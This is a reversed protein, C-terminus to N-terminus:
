MTFPFFTNMLLYALLVCSHNLFFIHLRRHLHDYQLLLALNQGSTCIGVAHIGVQLVFCYVFAPLFIPDTKFHDVKLLIISFVSTLRSGNKRGLCERIGRRLPFFSLFTRSFKSTIFNNGINRRKSFIRRGSPAFHPSHFVPVHFVPVHFVPVHFVPVPEQKIM